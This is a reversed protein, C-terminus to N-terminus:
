SSGFSSGGSGAGGNGGPNGGPTDSGGGNGPNTGGNDGDGNGGGTDGNGAVCDQFPQKVQDAFVTMTDLAPSVIASAKPSVQLGLFKGSAPDFGSARLYYDIGIIQQGAQSRTMTFSGLLSEGEEEFYTGLLTPIAPSVLILILDDQTYGQSNGAALYRNLAQQEEPSFSTSDVSLNELIQTEVVNLLIDLDEEFGPFAEKVRQVAGPDANLVDNRMEILDQNTFTIKCYNGKFEVTAADAMPILLSGAGVVAVATTALITRLKM